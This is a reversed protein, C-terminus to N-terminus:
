RRRDRVQGLYGCVPGHARQKRLEALEGRLRERKWRMSSSDRLRVGCRDRPSSPPALEVVDHCAERILIRTGGVRMIRASPDYTAIDSATLVATSRARAPTM